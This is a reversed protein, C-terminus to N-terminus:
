VAPILLIESSMQLDDRILYASLLRTDNNWVLAINYWTDEEVLLSNFELIEGNMDSSSLVPTLQFKIPSNSSKLTHFSSRVILSSLLLENLTKDPVSVSKDFLQFKLEPFPDVNVSETPPKRTSFSNCLDKTPWTDGDRSIGCQDSLALIVEMTSDQDKAIIGNFVCDKYFYAQVQPGVSVSKDFLQFKLEPFPDVNVSETPPKPIEM